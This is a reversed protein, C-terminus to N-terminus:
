EAKCVDGAQKGCALVLRPQVLKIVRRVHAFEPPLRSSSGNGIKPTTNCFSFQELRASAKTAIIDLRDGTRSTEFEWWWNVTKPKEALVGKDYANQLV